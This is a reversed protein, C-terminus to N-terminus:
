TTTSTRKSFLLNNLIAMELFSQISVNPSTNSVESVAQFKKLMCKAMRRWPRLLCDLQDPKAGVVKECVWSVCAYM